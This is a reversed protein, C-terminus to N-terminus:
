GNFISTPDDEIEALLETLTGFQVNGVDYPHWRGNRDAWHLSWDSTAPRYRLQAIGVHTWEGDGAWLPRTECLTVSLGRRHHEVRVEARVEAPVANACYRDILALDTEPISGTAM